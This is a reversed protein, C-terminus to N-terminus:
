ALGALMLMCQIATLSSIMTFASRTQGAQVVQGLHVGVASKKQTNTFWPGGSDGPASVYDQVIAVQKFVAGSVTVLSPFTAGVVSCSTGTAIGFHCVNEGRVPNHLSYMPQFIFGAVRVLGSPPELLPIFAIDEGTNSTLVDQFINGEYAIPASFNPTDQVCHAATILGSQDDRIGPFGGTCFAGLSQGGHWLEDSFSEVPEMFEFEITNLIESNAFFTRLYTEGAQDISVVVKSNSYDFNIGASFQESDLLAQIVTESIGELEEASVSSESIETLAPESVEYDVHDSYDSSDRVSSGAVEVESFAEPEPSGLVFESSTEDLTQSTETGDQQLDDAHASQGTILSYLTFAFLLAVM